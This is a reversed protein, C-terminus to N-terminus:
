VINVTLGGSTCSLYEEAVDKFRIYDKMYACDPVDCVDDIHQRARLQFFGIRRYRNWAVNVKELVIGCDIITDLETKNNYYSFRNIDTRIPLFYVTQGLRSDKQEVCDLHFPLLHGAQGLSCFLKGREHDCPIRHNTPCPPRKARAMDEAAVTGSLILDCQLSLTGHLVAGFIDKGPHMVSVSLVRVSLSGGGFPKGAPPNPVIPGDIATWSWSPARYEPRQRPDSVWWCLQEELKERWLGALYQDGTTSQISHVIGSLAVLKDGSNTLDCKSYRSKLETWQTEPSSRVLVLSNPLAYPLGDPFYESAIRSKCEWFFGQDGCHITRTPLLKEQMTWGRTALHSKTVSKEYEDMTAFDRTEIRGCISVQATFGGSHYQPKLFCGETGDRASSAAINLLSGGYVSSMMSAETEWDKSNDQIICLSDIWLYALGVARAIQIADSFSKPLFKNPVKHKLEEINTSNLTEFKNKGWCHSLTAYVPKETWGATIVLHVPDMSISLLRSPYHPRRVPNCEPHSKICNSTWWQALTMPSSQSGLVRESSTGLHWAFRNEETLTLVNTSFSRLDQIAKRGEDQTFATLLSISGSTWPRGPFGLDIELMDEEDEVLVVLSSKFPKRLLQLRREIIRYLELKNRDKLAQLILACCRCGKRTASDLRVTTEQCPLGHALGSPYEIWVGLNLDTSSSRPFAALGNNEIPRVHADKEDPKAYIDPWNDLMTRCISCFGDIVVIEQMTYLVQAEVSELDLKETYTSNPLTEFPTWDPHGRTMYDAYWEELAQLDKDISVQEM